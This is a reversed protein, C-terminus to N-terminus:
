GVRPPNAAFAEDVLRAVEQDGLSTIRGASFEEIITENLRRLRPDQKTLRSALEPRHDRIWMLLGATGSKDTIAGKPTCARGRSTSTTASWRCGCTWPSASPGTTTPSQPSRGPTWAM